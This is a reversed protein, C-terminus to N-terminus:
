TPANKNKKKSSPGSQTEKHSKHGVEGLPMLLQLLSLWFPWWLVCLYLFWRLDTDPLCFWRSVHKRWRLSEWCGVSRSKDMLEIFFNIEQKWILSIFRFFWYIFNWTSFVSSAQSQYIFLSFCLSYVFCSVITKHLSTKARNNGPQLIWYHSSSSFFFFFAPSPHAAEYHTQHPSRPPVGAPACLVLCM